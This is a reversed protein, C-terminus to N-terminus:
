DLYDSLTMETSEQGYNAYVCVVNSYTSYSVKRWAQEYTKATDYFLLDLIEKQASDDTNISKKDYGMDVLVQTISSIYILNSSQLMDFTQNDIRVVLANVNNEAFIEVMEKIEADSVSDKIYVKVSASNSLENHYEEYSHITDFEPKYYIHEISYLVMCDQTIGYLKDTLDNVAEDAYYVYIYDDRLIKGHSDIEANINLGNDLSIYAYSYNPDDYIAVNRSSINLQYMKNLQMSIYTKRIIDTRILFIIVMAIFILIIAVKTLISKVKNEKM